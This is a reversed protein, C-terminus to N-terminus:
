KRRSAITSLADIGCDIEEKTNFYSFSFRVLGSAVTGFHKHLLPACHAGPRTAIKFDSWLEQALDSSSMGELNLSVIALREQAEYDGYLKLGGIEKVGALFRDHLEQEHKRIEELGIRNIFQVGKQLGYLGHSNPTGTEFIDPVAKSHLYDFSNVGAGGTKTIKFDFDGNVLIGGTGQPGFLGKHGTFCCVDILSVDLPISGFTQSIDLIFIIQHERCLKSLTEIDTINGTLNSGHTCVLFEPKRKALSAFSDVLIRGNEDCPIYELNCQTLHLPRLVSNHETITTVVRDGKSILGQVVLNLSETASSTFAVQLPDKLGALKALETRTNYIERNARLVADYFSRGSNGLSTIAEKVAESVEPPKILSTASNDFYILKNIGGM